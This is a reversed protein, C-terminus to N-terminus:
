TEWLAKPTIRSTAEQNQSRPSTCRPTFASRHSRSRIIYARRAKSTARIHRLFPGAPRQANFKPFPCFPVRGDSDSGEFFLLSSEADEEGERGSIEREKTRGGGGARRELRLTARTCHCRSVCGPLAKHKHGGDVGLHDSMKFGREACNCM